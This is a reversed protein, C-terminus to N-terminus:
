KPGVKRDGMLRDRCGGSKGAGQRGGGTGVTTTRSTTGISHSTHQFLSAGPPELRSVMVVDRM